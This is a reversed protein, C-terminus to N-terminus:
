VATQRTVKLVSELCAQIPNQAVKESSHKHTVAIMFLHLYEGVRLSIGQKYQADLELSASAASPM